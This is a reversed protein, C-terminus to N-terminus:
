KFGMEPDHALSIFDDAGLSFARSVDSENDSASSVVVPTKNKKPPYL